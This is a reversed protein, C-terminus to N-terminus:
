KPPEVLRKGWRELFGRNAELFDPAGALEEVTLWLVEAVERPDPRFRCDAPLDARWWALDVNWATQSQELKEIPRPVVGLEERFERVLAEEETEDGEIGGGPFCLALPAIVHASRRIILLRDNRAVIGIVGRRPATGSAGCEDRVPGNM